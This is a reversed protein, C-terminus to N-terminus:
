PVAYTVYVMRTIEYVAFLIVVKVVFCDYFIHLKEQEVIYKISYKFSYYIVVLNQSRILLKTKRLM